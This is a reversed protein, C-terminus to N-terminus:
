FKELIKKLILPNVYSELLIGLFLLLMGLFLVVLYVFLSRQSHRGSFGKGPWKELWCGNRRTIYAQWLVLGFAPLYFLCQPFIAALCLGIGGIGYKVLAAVLYIGASFGIWGLIVYILIGGLFSSGMLWILGFSVGRGKLLYAFLLNNEVDQQLYHIQFYDSVFGVNGLYEGAFFNAYFLGFFLGGMFIFLLTNKRDFSFRPLRLM